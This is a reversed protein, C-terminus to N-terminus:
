GLAADAVAARVVNRLPAPLEAPALATTLAAGYQEKRGSTTGLFRHLQQDVTRTRQAPQQQFTRFLGLDGQEHLAEETRAHGLAGLLEGELDPRCVFVAEAPLGAREFFRVEGADCLGRLRMGAGGPGLEAVFRRVSMAGGMPVVSVGVAELEVGLVRAAAAVAARDSAGEVLIAAGGPVAGSNM